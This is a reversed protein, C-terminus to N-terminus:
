YNVQHKDVTGTSLSEFAVVLLPKQASVTGSSTAASGPLCFLVIILLSITQIFSFFIFIGLAPGPLVSLTTFM